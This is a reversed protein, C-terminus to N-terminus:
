GAHCSEWFAVEAEADAQPVQCTLGALRRVAQAPTILGQEIQQRAVRAVQRAVPWNRFFGVGRLLRARSAAPWRRVGERVKAAEEGRGQDDLWDAYRLRMEDDHPAAALASRWADHTRTPPM